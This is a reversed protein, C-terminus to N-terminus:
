GASTPKRLPDCFRPMGALIWGSGAEEQCVSSASFSSFRRLLVYCGYTLGVTPEHVAFGVKLPRSLEELQVESLHAPEGHEAVRLPYLNPIM